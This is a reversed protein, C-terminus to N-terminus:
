ARLLILLARRRLLYGLQAPTIAVTGDAPSLWIFRGREVRKGFLCMGRGDHWLVEILSPLRAVYYRYRMAGQVCAVRYPPRWELSDDRGRLIFKRACGM